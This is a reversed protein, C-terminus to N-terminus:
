VCLCCSKVAESTRVEASGSNGLMMMLMMTMTMMTVMEKLDCQRVAGYWPILIRSRFTGGVVVKSVTVLGTRVRYWENPM